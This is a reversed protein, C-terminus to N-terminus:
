NPRGIRVEGGLAGVVVGLVGAMGACLALYLLAAPYALVWPVMPRVLTEVLFYFASALLALAALVALLKALLPMGDHRGISFSLGRQRGLYDLLLAGGAFLSVFVWSTLFM